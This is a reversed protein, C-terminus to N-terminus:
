VAAENEFAVFLRYLLRNAPTEFRRFPIAVSFIPLQSNEHIRVISRAIEETERKDPLLSFALFPIGPLNSEDGGRPGM